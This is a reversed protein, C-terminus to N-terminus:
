YSGKGIVNELKNILDEVSSKDASVSEGYLKFTKLDFRSKFHALWGNSASFPGPVVGAERSINEHLYKAKETVLSGSLRGNKNNQEVIWSYLRQEVIELM